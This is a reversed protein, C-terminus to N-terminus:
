VGYRMPKYLKSNDLNLFWKITEQLGRNFGSVGIYEPQWNTLRLIKGNDAWLREVESNIPRIRQTDQIIEIETDMLEAILKATNKMSIEFNSGINIM